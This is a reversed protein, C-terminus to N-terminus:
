QKGGRKKAALRRASILTLNLDWIKNLIGRLKPQDINDGVIATEGGSTKVRM